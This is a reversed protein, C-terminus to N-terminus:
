KPKKDRLTADIVSLLSNKGPADLDLSWIMIGGLHADRAFQGKKRMTEAGNYWITGGVEDTKEAGPFAALIEKYSYGYTRFADGFGYGYFPVGLVIKQPALGRKTFFAVNEQVMAFPSHQGTRNKDWPGTADYAMISVFDFDAFASAPVKDGGYGQSLAATLLYKPHLARALDHVFAGYDKRIAPGELDIDLGDLNHAKVYAALKQVFKARHTDSTLLDYRAMLPANETASGGGLSVLVKVGRKHAEAVVAESGPAFEMDGADSVPNEFALNIHTIKAYDITQAFSKLDPNWNPVYAVVKPRKQQTKQAAAPAPSSAALAAFAAATLAFVPFTM